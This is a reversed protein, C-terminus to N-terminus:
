HYNYVELFRHFMNQLVDIQTNLFLRHADKIDPNTNAPVDTTSLGKLLNSKCKFSSSNDVTVDDINGAADLPQEDRKFQFLSGSTDSYNDSHEILKYMNMVLNLNEAAEVHEDNLHTVWRIFPSCNKFCLKTKNNGGVIAIDGASLYM